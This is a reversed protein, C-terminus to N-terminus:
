FSSEVVTVSTKRSCIADVLWGVYTVDNLTPTEHADSYAATDVRTLM